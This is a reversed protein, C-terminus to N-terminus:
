LRTSTCVGCHLVMRLFRNYLKTFVHFAMGGTKIFMSCLSGLARSASKALESVAFKFDLHENFWLGLYKYTSAFEIVDVGCTFVTTSCVIKQDSIYLRLRVKISLCVGNQVGIM